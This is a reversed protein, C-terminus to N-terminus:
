FQFYIFEPHVGSGVKVVCLTLILAVTFAIWPKDYNRELAAMQSSPGILAVAAAFALIAPHAGYASAPGAFGNGGALSSLMSLATPFDAARFLVWGAMVFTMTLAWGAWQPLEFQGLKNWWAHVALALGHMLGWVVFTWGAGHWLGGLFMTLTLAVSQTLMGHRGGGLPIYLYDRLFQSLTIHWRRWFERISTARYPVNFNVPLSLGFM